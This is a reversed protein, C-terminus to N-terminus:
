IAHGTTVGMPRGNLPVGEVGDVRDLFALPMLFILESERPSLQNAAEFFRYERLRGYPPNSLVTNFSFEKLPSDFLLGSSSMQLFDGCIVRIEDERCRILGALRQRAQQVMFLDIDIGLVRSAIDPVGASKMLSAAAYLLNGDGCAPDFIRWDDVPRRVLQLMRDALTGPTMYQGLIRQTSM